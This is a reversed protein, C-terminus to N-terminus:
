SQRTIQVLHVTLYIKEDDGAQYHYKKELYDFVQMSCQYERGYKYAIEMLAFKEDSQFNRSIVRQALFKLHTLYRCYALSEKNLRDLEEGFTKAVISNIEEVLDVVAHVCTNESGNQANVIHMTIFGAEDEPLDCGSYSRLRELTMFGIKYEKPYFKKIELLIGNKLKVGNKYNDICGNMHDPLAIHIAENLGMELQNQAFEIATESIEVIGDPVRQLLERWLEVTEADKLVFTKKIKSKDITQGPKKAYGIGNGYLIMENNNDDLMSVCNNNIVNLIQM